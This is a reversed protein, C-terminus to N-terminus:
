AASKDQEPPEPTNIMRDASRKDLETCYAILKEPDNDFEAWIARRIRRVEEVADDAETCEDSM